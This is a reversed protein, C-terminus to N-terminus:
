AVNPKGLLDRVGVGWQSLVRSVEGLSADLIEIRDRAVIKVSGAFSTPAWPILVTTQGNGHDEIVYVIECETESNKLLAPQFSEGGAFGGALHKVAKYLPLRDITKGEIWRGLRRGSESRLALGIMFSAGLILILGVAVPHKIEDFTGKPFLDAIPEALVVILGLAETLLLYLLLIPLLVFLGGLATTKLFEILKKMM